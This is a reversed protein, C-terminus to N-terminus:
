EETESGRSDDATTDESFRGILSALIVAILLFDLLVQLIVLGKPPTNLPTGITGFVLIANYLAGWFGLSPVSQRYFIGFALNLQLVNVFFLLVNREVSTSPENISRRSRLFVISFLNLYIEFLAYAAFLCSLSPIHFCWLALVLIPLWVLCYVDVVNDRLVRANRTNSDDLRLWDDKFWYSLSFLRLFLLTIDFRLEVGHVEESDRLSRIQILTRRLM